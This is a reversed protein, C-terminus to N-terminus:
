RRTGHWDPVTWRRKFQPQEILQLEPTRAIIAVRTAVSPSREGTPHAYANRKFWATPRGSASAEEQLLWEFPRAGPMMQAFPDARIADAAQQDLLGVAAYIEWDLNEQAAVMRAWVGQAAEINGEALQARLQNSSETLDRAIRILASDPNP